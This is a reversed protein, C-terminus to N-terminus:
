AGSPPGVVHSRDHDDGIAAARESDDGVPVDRDTRRERGRAAPCARTPLWSARRAFSRRIWAPSGARRRRAPRAPRDPRPAPGRVPRGPRRRRERRPPAPPPGRTRTPRPHDAVNGLEVAQLGPLHQDRRQGVRVPFRHHLTGGGDDRVPAAAGAVRRDHATLESDGGDHPGLMRGRPHLFAIRHGHRAGLALLPADIAPLNGAVHISGIRATYRMRARLHHEVYAIGESARASDNRGCSPTPRARMSNM